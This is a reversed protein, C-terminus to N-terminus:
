FWCNQLFEHRVTQSGFVPTGMFASVQAIALVAVLFSLFKNMTFNYTFPARTLTFAVADSFSTQQHSDDDSVFSPVTEMKHHRLVCWRFAAVHFSLGM